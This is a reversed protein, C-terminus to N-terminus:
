LFAAGFTANLSFSRDGGDFLDTTVADLNFKFRDMKNLITIRIGTNYCGRDEYYM